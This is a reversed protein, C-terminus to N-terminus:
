YEPSHKHNQTKTKAKPFSLKTKKTKKTIKQKQKTNQLIPKPQAKTQKTKNTKSMNKFTRSQIQSKTQIEHLLNASKTGKDEQKQTQIKKQKGIQGKMDGTLTPRM